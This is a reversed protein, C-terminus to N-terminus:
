ATKMWVAKTQLYADIHEQGSERGYGSMKYGGFPMAPDMVQYCNVWVTGTRLGASVRHATGIDRTWVGGGLGYVSDNARLIAEDVSDFPLVSIVPGFIEERAVAMGDEVGAFVTPAVFYGREHATDTLRGGGAVVRAGDAVGSRLFGDVREFQAKSVLPGLQTARDTPDGVRLSKAFAALREVFSDHIARQVFLRTGASCVQGSNGFVAMAAGPVAADLDADAFVINASKGGLELSVRKINGASARIIERGTETSGTFSVKDVGHHAALAAGADAFGPLVSVTGPPVGAEVCLAGFRLATLPAQEAPKLIVTCGAVLAPVIKWIAMALPANWPAIGAVVGVPERLTFSHFSGAVSNQVTQGHITTALGAYYRLAACVRDRRASTFAIPAGLELTELQALEDFHTAVLDALDLLVRQRQAPKFAGWEGGFARRAARVALEVDEAGAQAVEALWEGTAPNHVAFTKGSLAARLEGGILLPKPGTELFAPRLAGTPVQTM